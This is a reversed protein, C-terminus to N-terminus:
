PSASIWSNCAFTPLLLVVLCKRKAPQSFAAMIIVVIGPTKGSFFLASGREGWAFDFPTKTQKQQKGALCDIKVRLPANYYGAYSFM